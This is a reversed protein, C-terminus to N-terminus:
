ISLFAGFSKFIAFSGKGGNCINVMNFFDLEVLLSTIPEGGYRVREMEFGLNRIPPTRTELCYM